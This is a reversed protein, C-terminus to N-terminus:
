EQEIGEPFRDGVLNLKVGHELFAKLGALVWTFGQGSEALYKALEDGSGTWGSETISLFTTEDRWPKFTWEVETRGSYGDWEMLIRRNPEIVKPSVQTSVDYMEWEWKVAKGADLRGSSKTFWFQTTLEPNVIAEFVEAVPKRILMGTRAIPVRTLRLKPAVSRREARSKTVSRKRKPKAAMKRSTKKKTKASM